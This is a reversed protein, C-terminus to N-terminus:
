ARRRRPRVPRPAVPGAPGDAPSSSTGGSPSSGASGAPTVTPSVRQGSTSAQAATTSSPSSPCATSTGSVPDASTGSLGGAGSAQGIQTGTGAATSPGPNSSSSAIGVASGLEVLTERLPPFTLVVGIAFVACAAALAPRLLGHRWGQTPPRGRGAEGAGGRVANWRRVLDALFGGSAGAKAHKSAHAPGAQVRARIRELGDPRPEVQDAAAHLARRLYEGFEPGQPPIGDHGPRTM